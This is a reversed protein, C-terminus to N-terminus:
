LDVYNARREWGGRDTDDRAGPPTRARTLETTQTKSRRPGFRLVVAPRFGNLCPPLPLIMRHRSRVGQFVRYVSRPGLHETAFRLQKVLGAGVENRPAFLELAALPDERSPDTDPGEHIARIPQAISGPADEGLGVWEGGEAGADASADGTHRLGLDEARGPV